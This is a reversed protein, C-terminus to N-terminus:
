SLKGISIVKEYVNIFNGSYDMESLETLRQKSNKINRETMGEDTLMKLILNELSKVDGPDFLFEENAVTDPLSTVNSCIVPAGYRMAEYLPASGAEYKTPIVVLRTLKYLSILDGEPVIGLFQVHESLGMKTIEKALVKEYFETKNGTCILNIQLGKKNLNYVAELLTLHNKHKWTAAPYLLFQDPLSYKKKVVEPDTLTSGAFWNETFPPPCVSVKEKDISYYKLLDNRIHDFSVIIHTSEDMSKKNNLARHIRELSTFYEPFHFDQLDHMTTIVPVELSYVPSYQMPIHLLSIKAKNIKSKYPNILFSFSKLFGIKTSDPLYSHVVLYMDYFFYSLMLRLKIDWQLRDIELPEVKPNDLIESISQRIDPSYILVIKKIEEQNLLLKLIGISYTFIGGAKITSHHIYFGIRM